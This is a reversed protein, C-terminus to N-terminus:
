VDGQLHLGYCRYAGSRGRGSVFVEHSYALLNVLGGRIADLNRASPAINEHFLCLLINYRTKFGYADGLVIEKRKASPALKGYLPKLTKKDYAMGEIHMRLGSATNAGAFAYGLHSAFERFSSRCVDNGLMWTMPIDEGEGFVVTAFFQHVLAINYDQNIKMLPHLGLKETIWLAEEFYAHKYLHAFNITKQPCVKYKTLKVYIEKFILEQEKRHFNGVETNKPQAFFNTKRMARYEPQSLDLVTTIRDFQAKKAREAKAAEKKKAEVAKADRAQQAAVSWQVYRDKEENYELV